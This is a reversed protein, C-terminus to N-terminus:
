ANNRSFGTNYAYYGYPKGPCSAKKGGGKEALVPSYVLLPIRASGEFPVAKKHQYHDGLMDGHDSLVFVYTNELLGRSACGTFCSEWRM